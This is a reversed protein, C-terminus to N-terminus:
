HVYYSLKGYNGSKYDVVVKRIHDLVVNRCFATNNFNLLTIGEPLVTKYTETM